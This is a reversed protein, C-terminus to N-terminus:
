EVEEPDMGSGLLDRKLENFARIDAAMDADTHSDMDFDTDGDTGSSALVENLIDEAEGSLFSFNKEEPPLKELLQNVKEVVRIFIAPDNLWSKDWMPSAKLRSSLVDLYGGPLLYGLTPPGAPRCRRLRGAAVEYVWSPLLMQKFHGFVKSDFDALVEFEEIPFPIGAVEDANCRLMFSETNKCIDFLSINLVKGSAFAKPLSIHEYRRAPAVIRTANTNGQKFDM